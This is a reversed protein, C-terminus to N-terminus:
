GETDKCNLTAIRTRNSRKSSRTLVRPMPALPPTMTAVAFMLLALMLHASSLAERHGVATKRPVAAGSRLDVESKLKADSTM